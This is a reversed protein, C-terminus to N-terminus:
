YKVSAVVLEAGSTVPAEIVGDTGLDTLSGADEPVWRFAVLEVLAVVVLPDVPVRQVHEGAGDHEAVVGVDGGAVVRERARRGLAAARADLASSLPQFLPRRRDRDCKECSENLCFCSIM